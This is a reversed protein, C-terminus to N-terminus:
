VEEENSNLNIKAMNLSLEIQLMTGDDDSMFARLENFSKTAKALSEPTEDDILDFIKNIQRQIEGIYQPIEFWSLFADNLNKGYTHEFVTAESAGKDIRLLLCDDKANKLYNAVFPSHTTVVFQTNPFYKVLTNLIAGQWKPHLYTDIEDILVIAYQEAFNDTEGSVEVMRRIFYGIWSFVNKFGQSVLDFLIPSEGDIRVWLLEVSVGAFSIPKGIIDSIVNFITEKIVKEYYERKGERPNNIKDIIWDKLEKFRNNSKNYLIPEIDSINPANNYKETTSFVIDQEQEQAFGLFLHKFTKNKAFAFTKDNSDDSIYEKIEIVQKTPSDLLLIHNCCDIDEGKSTQSYNLIIDGRKEYVIKTKDTTMNGIRLLSKLIDVKRREDITPIEVTGALGLAIARLLNTKGTGNEGLICVVRKDLRMFFDEFLSINKLHLSKLRFFANKDEEVSAPTEETSYSAQITNRALVLNNEFDPVKIFDLNSIDKNEFKALKIANNIIKHESRMFNVLIPIYDMTFNEIYSKQWIDANETKRMDLMAALDKMLESLGLNGDANMYLQMEGDTNIEFYIIPTNDSTKGEWFSIYCNKNDGDFYYGEKLRRTNIKFVVSNEHVYFNSLMSFCSRQIDTAKIGIKNIHLIERWNALPKKSVGSRFHYAFTNLDNLGKLRYENSILIYIPENTIQYSRRLINFAEQVTKLSHVPKDKPMRIVTLKIKDFFLVDFYNLGFTENRRAKFQLPNLGLIESLSAILEKEEQLM